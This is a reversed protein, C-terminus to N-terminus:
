QLEIGPYFAGLAFWYGMFSTAPKLQQGTRSGSVAKFAMDITFEKGLGRVMDNYITVTCAM